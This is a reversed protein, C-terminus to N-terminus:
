SFLQPFSQVLLKHLGSFSSYTLRCAPTKRTLEALDSIGHGPINRANVSCEILKACAQAPSLTQMRTATGPEYKPLLILAVAPTVPSWTNLLRHPLMCGNTGAIVEGQSYRCFAAVVPLSGAKISLPRTLGQMRGERGQLLVLEDTLYNCGRSVLLSTLTSKGSGSTGPLLVGGAASGLAAAHIAHGSTNDAICHYVIENMLAYALDYRSTGFYLQRDGQWLSFMPRPGVAMLDYTARSGAAEGKHLDRCLFHVIHRAQSGFSKITVFQSCLGVTCSGSEIM